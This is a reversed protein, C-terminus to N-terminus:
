RRQQDGVTVFVVDARNRVDPAGQIARDVGARKRRLQNAGLQVRAQGPWTQLFNTRQLRDADAGKLGFPNRDGVRNRFGVGDHQIDGALAQVVASVPLEVVVGHDALQGRLRAQLLEAAGPNIDDDTVRGVGRHGAGAAGFSGHLVAQLIGNPGAALTDDDGTKGAVQRAQVAQRVDGKVAAAVGRQQAAAEGMHVANAACLAIQRAAGTVDPWPLQAVQGALLLEPHAGAALAFGARCQAPQGGATM